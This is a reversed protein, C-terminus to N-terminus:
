VKLSTTDRLRAIAAVRDLFFEVRELLLTAVTVTDLLPQTTMGFSIRSRCPMSGPSRTLMRSKSLRSM